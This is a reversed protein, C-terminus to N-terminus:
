YFCVSGQWLTRKQSAGLLIGNSIAAALPIGFYINYTCYIYQTYYTYDTYYAYYTVVDTQCSSSYM